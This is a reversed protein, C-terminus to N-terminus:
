APLSVVNDALTSSLAGVSRPVRGGLVQGVQRAALDVRALIAPDVLEHGDFAKEDAYIATPMTLASLVGFLPRLQHELMLAHRQGGGTAALIVPVGILADMEVFDILHKFLGPYSGKYVPTAVVIADATEIAGIVALTEATLTARSYAAGLGAPGADLVDLAEISVPAYSSVGRAIAAAFARSRSPRQLNGSLAVVRFPTTTVVANM